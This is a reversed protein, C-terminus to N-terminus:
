RSRADVDRREVLEESTEGLLEGSLQAFRAALQAESTPDDHAHQQTM